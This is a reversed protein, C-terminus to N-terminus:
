ADGVEKNNLIDSPAVVYSEITKKISILEERAREQSAPIWRLVRNISAHIMCMQHVFEHYNMVEERAVRHHHNSAYRGNFAM